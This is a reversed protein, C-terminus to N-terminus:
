GDFSFMTVTDASDMGDRLFKIGFGPSTQPVEPNTRVTESVRLIGHTAGRFIGTYPNTMTPRFAVKMTVGRPHTMKVRGDPMTDGTHDFSLNMDQTFLPILDTGDFWRELNRDELVKQWIQRKKCSASQALYEKTNFQDIEPFLCPETSVDTSQEAKVLAEIESQLQLESEVLAELELASAGIAGLSALAAFKLM